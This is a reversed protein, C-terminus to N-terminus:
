RVPGGRTSPRQSRTEQVIETLTRRRAKAPYQTAIRERAEETKPDAMAQGIIEAVVEPDRSEVYYAASGAVEPLAGAAALVPTCGALMAEAVSCGFAEHRSLQLYISSTTLLDNMADQALFGPLHPETRRDLTTIWRMPNSTGLPKTGSANTIRPTAIITVATM